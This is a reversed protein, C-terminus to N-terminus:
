SLALLVFLLVVCTVCSVFGLPLGVRAAKMNSLLIVWERQSGFGKSDYSFTLENMDTSLQLLLCSM